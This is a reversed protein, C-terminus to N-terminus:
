FCESQYVGLYLLPPVYVDPKPDNGTQLLVLM